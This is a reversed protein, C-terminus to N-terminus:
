QHNSFFHFHFDYCYYVKGAQEQMFRTNVIHIIPMDDIVTDHPSPLEVHSSINNNNNHTTQHYYIDVQYALHIMIFYCLLLSVMLLRVLFTWINRTTNYGHVVVQKRVAFVDSESDRELLWRCDVRNHRKSHEQTTVLKPLDM